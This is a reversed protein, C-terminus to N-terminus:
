STSGRAGRERETSGYAVSDYWDLFGRWRARLRERARAAASKRYALECCCNSLCPTSASGPFAGQFPDDEIRQWGLAEFELCGECHKCGAKTDWKVEDFGQEVHVIQDARAFGERASNVYMRSRAAIQAESVTGASIENVLGVVQRGEPTTFGGDIWRYQEAIIGGCRGWDAQTMRDRGGRGLIYQRIVEDKIEQRFQQRWNGPSLQGESAMRALNDTVIGAARISDDVMQLIESRAIFRSRGNIWHYRGAGGNWFWPM